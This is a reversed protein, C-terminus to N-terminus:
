VSPETSFPGAKVHIMVTEVGPLRRIYLRGWMRWLGQYHTGEDEAGTGGGGVALGQQGIDATIGM